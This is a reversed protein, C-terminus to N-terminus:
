KVRLGPAVPADTTLIVPKGDSDTAALLMGQSVVGRLKAPKLNAVIVINKGILAEPEYALAIGAVLYRDAPAIEETTSEEDGDAAFVKRWGSASLIFTGLASELDEKSPITGSLPDKDPNGLQFRYKPDLLTM